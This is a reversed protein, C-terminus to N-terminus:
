QAIAPLVHKLLISSPLKGQWNGYNSGTFVGTLDYEPIWMMYQGGNGSAFLVETNITDYRLIERYWYLGYRASETIANPIKAYHAFSYDIPIDCKTSEAIWESSIIQQGKWKGKQKVLNIIKLMDLPKMYFSGATMGQGKPSITWRYDIIGLPEFLFQRAFEMVTMGSARAIVEGVVMPDISNYSWKLGSKRVKDVNLCFDIWDDTAWMADECDPGNGYFEECDFGSRMELLHRIRIGRKEPDQLEPFYNGLTDDLKILQKDFAIGALLSTISKFYSRTDHLSYANFDNYYQEFLISEGRQIIIADVNPYKGQSIEQNLSDLNLVKFQQAFVLYPFFLSWIVLSRIIMSLCAMFVKLDAYVNNLILTM